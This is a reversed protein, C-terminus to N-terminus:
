KHFLMAFFSISDGPNGCFDSLLIGHSKWSKGHCNVGNEMIDPLSVLFYDCTHMVYMFRFDFKKEFQFYPTSLITQRGVLM